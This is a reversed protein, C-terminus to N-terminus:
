KLAAKYKEIRALVEARVAQLRSITLDLEALKQEEAKLTSIETTTTPTEIKIQREKEPVSADDIVEIKEADATVGLVAGGALVAGAIGGVITKTDM